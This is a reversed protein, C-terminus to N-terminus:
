AYEGILRMNPFDHHFSLYEMGKGDVIVFGRILFKYHLVIVFSAELAASTIHIRVKFPPWM